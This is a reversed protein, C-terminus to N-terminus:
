NGGDAHNGVFRGNIQLTDPKICVGWAYGDLPEVCVLNRNCTHNPYCGEGDNGYSLVCGSLFVSCLLTVIRM